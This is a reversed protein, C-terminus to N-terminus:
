ATLRLAKYALLTGDFQFETRAKIARLQDETLQAFLFDIVNTTDPEGREVYDPHNTLIAENLKDDFALQTIPYTATSTYSQIHIHIARGPYWGPFISDYVVLGWYDSVQAGRCFNVKAYEEDLLCNVGVDNPPVEGSYTGQANSHWVKVTVGKLPRCDADVIQLVLRMPLGAEGESIDRRFLTLETNCPGEMIDPVLDICESRIDESFPTSYLAANQVNHNINRAWGRTSHQCGLPSQAVLKSAFGVTSLATLWAAGTLVSRRSIKSHSDTMSVANIMKKM